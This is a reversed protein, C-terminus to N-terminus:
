DARGGEPQTSGAARKEGARGERATKGSRGPSKRERARREAEQRTDFHIKVVRSRVATSEDSTEKLEKLLERIEENDM